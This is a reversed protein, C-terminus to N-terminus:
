ANTYTATGKVLEGVAYEVEVETCKCSIGQITYSAGATPATGFFAATITTTIGGAAAGAGPDPLGDVYVRNSGEALDLTSADLRNGSSTPDQGVQKIKVNTLGDPLGTFSTGNAATPM